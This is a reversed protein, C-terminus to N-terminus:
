KDALRTLVDRIERLVKILLYKEDDLKYLDKKNKPEIVGTKKM